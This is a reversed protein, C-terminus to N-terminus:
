YNVKSRIIREADIFISHKHLTNEVIDEWEVRYGGCHAQDQLWAIMQMVADEPNDADFFSSISVTYTDEDMFLM